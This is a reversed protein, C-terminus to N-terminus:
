RNECEFIEITFLFLVLASLYDFQIFALNIM